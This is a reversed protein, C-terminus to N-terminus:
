INHGFFAVWKNRYVLAQTHLFSVQFLTVYRRGLEKGVLGVGNLCCGYCWCSLRMCIIATAADIALQM